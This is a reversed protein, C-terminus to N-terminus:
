THLAPTLTLTLILTLTLTLTQPATHYEGGALRLRLLREGENRIKGFHFGAPDFPTCVQLQVAAKKPKTNRRRDM